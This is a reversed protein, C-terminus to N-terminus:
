WWDVDSGSAIGTQDAHKTMEPSVNSVRQRRMSGLKKAVANPKYDLRDIVEQVRTRTEERVHPLGNVVRSVTKISVAALRAVDRITAPQVENHHHNM